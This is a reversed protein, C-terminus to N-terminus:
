RSSRRRGSRWGSRPAAGRPHPTAREGPHDTERAQQREVDGSGARQRETGASAQEPRTNVATAATVACSDGLARNARPAANPTSAAANVSRATPSALERASCREHSEGSPQDNCTRGYAPSRKTPAAAAGPAVAAVTPARRGAAPGDRRRRPGSRRVDPGAARRRRGARRWWGPTAAPGRRAPATSPRVTGTRGASRCRRGRCRRRSRRCREGAVDHRPEAAGVGHLLGEDGDGEAHEAHHGRREGDRQRQPQVLLLDLWRASVSSAPATLLVRQSALWRTIASAPDATAM